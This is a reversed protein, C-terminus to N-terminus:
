QEAVKKNIYAQELQALKEYDWKRGTYNHFRTKEGRKQRKSRAGSKKTARVEKIDDYYTQELAEVQEATHVGDKKWKKFIGNTYAFSPQAINMITRECALKIVDMTFGDEKLWKEMYRIEKEIPERNRLGYYRLIERYENDFLRIYEEADEVTEIGRESWDYAVTRFYNNHTKGKEVCYELMVSIVDVCLGLDDYFALFMRREIDNLPKGLLSHAAYFLRQVEPDELHLRVDELSYNPFESVFVRSVAPEKTKDITTQKASSESPLHAEHTHTNDAHADAKKATNGANSTNMFVLELVGDHASLIEVLGLQQWYEWIALVREESIEFDEAMSSCCIQRAGKAFLRMGHIYVVSYIPKAVPLHIDLFDNPIATTFM